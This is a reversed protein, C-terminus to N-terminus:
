DDGKKIVQFKDFVFGLAIGFIILSILTNILQIVILTTPYTFLMWQNFAEPAAKVIGLILGFSLGKKWGYGPISKYVLLYFAIFLIILAISFLSNLLIWNSMGGFADMPKISPHNEYQKFLNMVFPNMYLLNGAVMQVFLVVMGWTIAKKYNIETRM